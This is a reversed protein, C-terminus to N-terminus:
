DVRAVTGPSAVADVAHLLLQLSDTPRLGARPGVGEAIWYVKRDWPYRATRAVVAVKTAGAKRVDGLLVRVQALSLSPRLHLAIAGSAGRLDRLASVRQGAGYHQGGIVIEGTANVEAEPLRPDAEAADGAVPWNNPDARRELEALAGNALRDLAEWARVAESWGPDTGCMVCDSVANRVRETARRTAISAVVAGQLEPVVQKCEGSLPGGCLRLLYAAVDEGPTPMMAAANPDRKFVLDDAEFAPALLTPWVTLALADVQEPMARAHVSQVPVLALVMLKLETDKAVARDMGSRLEFATRSLQAYAAPTRGDAVYKDVAVLLAGQNYDGSATKHVDIKDQGCGALVAVVAVVGVVGPVSVRRVARSMM